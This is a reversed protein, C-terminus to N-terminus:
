VASEYENNPLSRLVRSVLQENKCVVKDADPNFISDIAIMEKEAEGQVAFRVGSSNDLRIVIPFTL